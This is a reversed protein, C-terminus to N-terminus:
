QKVGTLLVWDDESAHAKLAVGQAAYASVLVSQQEELVGTLGLQGGVRLRSCVHSALRSLTVADVNAIVVDFSQEVEELPTLAFQCRTAANREANRQALRVSEDDNDIGLVLQAGGREAVLALVGSGTGFDLVSQDSAVEELFRAAMRTTPHEGFGFVLGTELYLEGLQPETRYRVSAAVPVLRIQATLAVPVLHETWKLRWEDSLPATECSWPDNPSIRRLLRKLAESVFSLPASGRYITLEAIKAEDSTDQSAGSAGADLCCDMVARALEARVRVRLVKSAAASAKARPKM